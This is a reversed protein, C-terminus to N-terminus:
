DENDVDIELAIYNGNEGQVYEVEVYLNQGQLNQLESLCDTGVLYRDQENQLDFECYTRDSVQITTGNVTVTNNTTDVQIDSLPVKIEYREMMGKNHEEEEGEEFRRRHEEEYREGCDEGEELELKIVRSNVPHIKVEACVPGQMNQIAQICDQGFYNGDPLKCLTNSEINATLEPSVSITGDFSQPDIVVYAEIKGRTRIREEDEHRASVEVHVVRCEDNCELQFNNLEFDVVLNQGQAPDVNTKIDISCRGTQQDCNINQTNKLVLNKQQGEYVVTGQNSVELRMGVFRENPVQVTGLYHYVGELEALDLTIGTNDNFVVETNTCAGDRCLEIKHLKVEFRAINAPADTAYLDLSSTTLSSESSISGGGGGGCGYILALSFISATLLKKRSM